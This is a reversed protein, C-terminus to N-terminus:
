GVALGWVTWAPAVHAVTAAEGDGDGLGREMRELFSSARDMRLETDLAVEREVVVEREEFDLRLLLLERLLLLLREERDVREERPDESVVLRLLRLERPDPKM